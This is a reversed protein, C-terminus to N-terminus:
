KGGKVKSQENSARQGGSSSSSSTSSVRFSEEAELLWEHLLELGHNQAGGTKASPSSAELGEEGSSEDKNESSSDDFSTLPLASSSSFGEVNSQTFPLWMTEGSRRIADAHKTSLSVFRNARSSQSRAEFASAAARTRNHKSFTDYLVLSKALTEYSSPPSSSSQDSPNSEFDQDSTLASPKKTKKAAEEIKLNKAALAILRQSLTFLNM